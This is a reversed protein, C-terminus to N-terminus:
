VKFIKNTGNDWVVLIDAGAPTAPLGSTATDIYAILESTGAVGTDRYIVLAESVDGAAASFLADDADCVGNESTKGTFNGSTAVRAAVPIDSLFEHAALDPTYDALDVLVAKINGAEWQLGANASRKRAKEYLKNAM